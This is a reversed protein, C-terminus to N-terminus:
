DGARRRGDHRWYRRSSWRTATTLSTSRSTFVRKWTWSWHPHTEHTPAIVAYTISLFHSSWGCVAGAGHTVARRRLKNRPNQATGGAGQEGKTGTPRALGVGQQPPKTAVGRRAGIPHRGPPPEVHPWGRPRRHPRRRVQQRSDVLLACPPRHLHKDNLDVESYGHVQHVPGRRRSAGGGTTAPGGLAPRAAKAPPAAPGGSPVTGRRSANPERAVSVTAGPQRPCRGNGDARQGLKTGDHARRHGPAASRPRRQVLARRTRM